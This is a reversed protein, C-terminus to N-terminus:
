AHNEKPKLKTCTNHLSERSSVGPAFFPFGDGDQSEEITWPDMRFVIQCEFPSFPPRWLWLLLRGIGKASSHEPTPSGYKKGLHSCIDM